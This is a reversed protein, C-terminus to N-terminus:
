NKIRVLHNAQHAPIRGTEAQHVNSHIQGDKM